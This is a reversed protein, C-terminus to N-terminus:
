CLHRPFSRARAAVDIHDFSSRCVGFRSANQFGLQAVHDAQVQFGAAPANARQNYSDIYTRIATQLEAVDTFSGRRIAQRTIIGFFIEVM